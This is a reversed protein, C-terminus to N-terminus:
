LGDMQPVVLQLVGLVTWHSEAAAVACSSSAPSFGWTSHWFDVFAATSPDYFSMAQMHSYLYRYIIYTDIFIIYIYINIYYLSIVIYIYIHHM